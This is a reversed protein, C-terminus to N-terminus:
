SGGSTGKARTPQGPEWFECWACAEETVGPPPCGVTLRGRHPRACLWLDGPQEPVGIFQFDMLAWQCNWPFQKSEKAVIILVEAM